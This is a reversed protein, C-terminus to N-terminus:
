GTRVMPLRLTIRVALMTSYRKCLTSEVSIGFNFRLLGLRLVQGVHCYYINTVQSEPSLPQYCISNAYEMASCVEENVSMKRDLMRLVYVIMALSNSVLSICDDSFYFITRQRFLDGSITIETESINSCICSGELDFNESKQYLSLDIDICPDHFCIQRASHDITYGSTFSNHSDSFVYSDGTKKWSVMDKDNFLLDKRIM